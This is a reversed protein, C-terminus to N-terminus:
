PELVSDVGGRLHAVFAEDEYSEAAHGLATYWTRGTGYRGSWAIPHKEGMTGGEYTSEDVTLLVTHDESPHAVFDYWEDTWSWRAPLHATSPHTPEVVDVTADQIEPHQLFRAGAIREFEPWTPEATAAAHVGLWAGGDALWRALCSRQAPSLVDGSVSLWLVLRYRTLDIPTFVDPDETHDVELGLDTLLASLVAAGREISDHRYGTTATFLLARNM